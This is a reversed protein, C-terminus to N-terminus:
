KQARVSNGADDRPPSEVAIDFRTSADIERKYRQYDPSGPPSYNWNKYLGILKTFFERADDRNQFDYDHDILSTLLRLSELQRERTICDSSM